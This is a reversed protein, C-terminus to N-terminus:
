LSLCRRQAADFFPAKNRLTCLFLVYAKLHTKYQSATVCIHVTLPLQLQLTKLTLSLSNLKLFVCVASLVHGGNCYSKKLLSGMVSGVLAIMVGAKSEESHWQTIKKEM